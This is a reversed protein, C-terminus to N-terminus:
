FSIFNYLYFLTIEREIKLYMQCKLKIRHSHASQPETRHVEPTIYLSAQSTFSHLVTFWINSFTARTRTRWECARHRLPLERSERFRQKRMQLIPLNSYFNEQGGNILMKQRSDGLNQKM